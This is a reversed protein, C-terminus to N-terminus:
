HAAQQEILREIRRRADPAAAVEADVVRQLIRIADEVEGDAEALSAATFAARTFWVAGELGRVPREEVFDYVVQLYQLMSEEREGLEDLARGIKYGAQLQLVPSASSRDLVAQWSEMAERYRDPNENGLTFQCDGKRGWAADVLLHDPFRRIVEEFALIAGAFEGLYSLTDGQAFRVEPMHVSDPFQRAFRNFYDIANLYEEQGMAARGAWYLAQDALAGAPDSEFLAIFRQEAESFYRQNFQYAALWFQVDPVWRSRPYRQIFAESVALAREGQGLLYLCWGRMFFAQEASPHRPFAEVVQEFDTLAEQFLGLRYRIMARRHLAEPFFHGEPYGEMLRQYAAIARDWQAVNEQLGGIRMAAREAYGTDPFADEIARFELVAAEVQRERALCEAAQFLAMPILESGPFVQTVQLYEERARAYQETEFYADAIKFLAQEREMVGEHTAYAQEFSRAAELPRRLGLLSWARGLLATARGVPDEFAELYDQYARLAADYEEQALLAEALELQARAALPDGPLAAVTERLLDMGPGWESLKFHLRAQLMRGRYRVSQRLATQQGLELAAIADANRGEAEEIGALVYWAEALEDAPAEVEDFVPQLLARAPETRGADMHLMALWIRATVVGAADPYEELLRDLVPIAEDAREQDILTAAWDLLHAAAEPTDAYMEDFQEHMRLAEAPQGTRAYAQALIRARLAADRRDLADVELRGMEEVVETYRGAGYLARARWYRYRHRWPEPVEDLDDPNLLDIIEDYRELPYLAEVYGLTAKYEQGADRTRERARDFFRAAEAYLGDAFAAQGARINREVERERRSQADALSVGLGWCVAIVAVRWWWGVPQYRIQRLRIHEMQM